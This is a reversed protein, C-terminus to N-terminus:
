WFSCREVRRLAAPPHGCPFAHQFAAMDALTGNVRLQEPAHEDLRERVDHDPRTTEANSRAYAVFFRRDASLVAGPTVSRRLQETRYARFAIEMGALDALAEDRVLNGDVRTGAPLRYGGFQRTLCSVRKHYAAVEAATWWARVRGSEDFKRGDEDLSHMFEHAVLAGLGGYDSAPDRNPSVFPRQLVTPPLYVENLEPLYAVDESLPSVSLKAPDFGERLMRFRFRVNMLMVRQVNTLYSSRDLVVPEFRISSAPLARIVQLADLKAEIRRRTRAGLWSTERIMGRMAGRIGAIVEVARRDTRAVVPNELALTAVRAPLLASTAETCRRWRPREAASGGNMAAELGVGAEVFRRSLFPAYGSLIRWRLYSRLAPVPTIRLVGDARHIYGPATENVTRMWSLGRQRLYSPWDIAGTVAALHGVRVPRHEDRPEAADSRRHIGELLLEDQLRFAADAEDNADRREDGALEFLARGYGVYAAEKARARSNTDDTLALKAPPVEVPAIEAVFRVRGIPDVGPALVFLADIGRDHLHALEESLTAPDVVAEVRQLEERLAEDGTRDIAAVDMCSAYLDGVVRRVSNGPGSRSAASELVKHIRDEYASAALDFRDVSFAGAAPRHADRWARNVFAYFDRCATASGASPALVLLAVAALALLRRTRRMMTCMM